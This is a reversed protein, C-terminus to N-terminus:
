LAAGRRAVVQVCRLQARERAVYATVVVKEETQVGGLGIRYWAENRADLSPVWHAARQAELRLRLELAERLVRLDEAGLRVVVHERIRWAGSVCAYLVHPGALVCRGRM